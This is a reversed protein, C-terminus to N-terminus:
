PATQKKTGGMRQALPTLVKVAAEPFAQPEVSWFSVLVRRGDLMTPVHLSSGFARGMTMLDATQATNFTSNVVPEDSSLYGAMASRAADYTRDLRGVQHDFVPSQSVRVFHLRGDDVTSICVRDIQPVTNRLRRLFTDADKQSRNFRAAARELLRGVRPPKEAAERRFRATRTKEPDIRSPDVDTTESFWGIMMEEWTQDGWYVDSNPDPNAFNDESNDFHALCYLKTGAPVYKPEALMYVTQWNFDYYPVNLITEKTGDPYHLEYRFSKGRLHMHPTLNLLMSDHRFTHTAEVPHNRAGAPIRFAFNIAMNMRVNHKVKSADVFNFGVCSRDQVETGNPTYHMQFLLRTGARVFTAMGEPSVLPPTGPATGAILEIGGTGPNFDRDPDDPGNFDPLETGPPVAFVFIHHVVSRNGPLCESAQIWRDEKWGPDVLFYQYEVVGEAPVTFPEDRMYYVEDPGPIQWGEPYEIPEPLDAPDGEPAGAAVWAYITEKEEPTMSRDNLFHGYRPDAHWPPMRQLRIVEEIMDAWGAVEEYEQLAFPAIQGPRHCEVCHKQLIRAVQNSYTIESNPDPERVRGILCGVATTIPVSVPKGALVEQIAEALDRRKVEPRAYGTSAGLGYQDDVRGFYRVVRQEDLVFVQPNRLAGFRDAVVNGTDKLLPFTVGHVRAFHAMETISDQRNSDIGLFAVDHESFERHLEELRPAYLRALPCETGLFAVVVVKSSAYDDLSHLKGRFDHLAFNEIKEGLPYTNKKEAATALAAFLAVAWFTLLLVRARKM